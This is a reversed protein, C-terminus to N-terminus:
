PISDQRHNSTSQRAVGIGHRQPQKPLTPRVWSSDPKVRDDPPFVFKGNEALFLGLCLHQPRSDGTSGPAVPPMKFEAGGQQKLFLGVGNMNANGAANGRNEFIDQGGRDHLLGTSYDRGHGQGQNMTLRYHDNGGLDLLAGVAYHAAAGQNYWPGTYRDNGGFDTLIGIGYWYGVGQGFVGSIYTDDGAGDVLVAIGGALSYGDGPHARRGIGCGQAVSANAKKTQPSPYVIRETEAEYFDNGTSDTLVACAGVQAFAQGAQVCYYRDNGRLDNLIAFGLTAAAEGYRHVTYRDDGNKDLLMGVGASSAAIGANAQYLDNGDLDALFGYGLIGVAFATKSSIYTDNGEHDILISVPHAANRTTAGGLYRDNGATDIILLYDGDEYTNAQAGNLCILGLPSNWRFAFERKAEAAPLQVRLIDQLARAIIIGGGFLRTMDIKEILTRTTNDVRYDFALDTASRFIADFKEPGGVQALAQNRWAIAEPVALLLVAAQRAVEPPVTTISQRLETQQVPTLPTKAFQHLAAIAQYLKSRPPPM